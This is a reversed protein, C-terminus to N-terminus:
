WMVVEVYAQRLHLLKGKVQQECLLRVDKSPIEVDKFIDDGFIVKYQDKIESFEIPFVDLSNLVYDRTLFM